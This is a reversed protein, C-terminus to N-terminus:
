EFDFTTAIALSIDFTTAIAMSIDFKFSDEEEDDVFSAWVLLIIETSSLAKIRLEAVECCRCAFKITWPM